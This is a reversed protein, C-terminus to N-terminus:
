DADKEESMKSDKRWQLVKENVPQVLVRVGRSSEFRETSLGGLSGTIKRSIQPSCRGLSPSGIALLSQSPSNRHPGKDRISPSGEKPQSADGTCDSPKELAKLPSTSIIGLIKKSANSSNSKSNPTGSHLSMKVRM